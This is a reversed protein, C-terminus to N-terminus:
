DTIQEFLMYKVKNTTKHYQIQTCKFKIQSYFQVFQNMGGAYLTEMDYKKENDIMQVEIKISNNDNDMYKKKNDKEVENNQNNDVAKNIITALEVGFIEQNEYSSFQKNEKQAEYYSAKYNLYLYSIGVVIIVILLFFIALKKM